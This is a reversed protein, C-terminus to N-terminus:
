SPHPKYIASVHKRWMKRDFVDAENLNGKRLEAKVTGNRTKDGEGQLDRLKSRM